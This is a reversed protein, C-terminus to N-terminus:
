KGYNELFKKDIERLSDIGTENIMDLVIDLDLNQLLWNDFKKNFIEYLDKNEVGQKFIVNHIKIKNRLVPYTIDKCFHHVYNSELINTLIKIQESNSVIVMNYNGIRDVFDISCEFHLNTIQIRDTDSLNQYEWTVVNIDRSYDILYIREKNM